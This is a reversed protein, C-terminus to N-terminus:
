TAIKKLFEDEGLIEVGLRKAKEAKSGPDAGVVVFTTKKSVSESVDAGLGRVKEKAEDRSMSELSGTFVWSTGSLPGRGVDSTARGVNVFTLLNDLRKSEDKNSFYDVISQAMVEGIGEIEDLDEISAQRLKDLSKFHRSLLVATEFGVHRIGLAYIFRELTVKRHAQIEKVLKNSSVEGFGELGGFDGPELRFLDSPESILGEQLFTEIIKGGLGRIDFAQRSVFHSLSAMEQAFCRPNSCVAAVEGQKRKVESGCIPCKEPMKFKKEKGTRLRPLVQVIKPIVDGAKEVIVTDGIKLGLREIEDENHLTAHTVTTGALQVPDMVAVPTLVGTRGVSVKIERVITTGQEAAFKWAVSGRPTKGVIGLDAFRKNSNVSVVVGDIQYDLKDRDQEIKDMVKKVEDINRCLKNYPNTPFGLLSLLDDEQSQLKLGIDAVLQWPFFSLKREAAIKPDLQRLGGAAANRPNALLPEGRKKLDKNLKLLGSRTMYIEGRVEFRGTQHELFNETKKYDLDQHHKTIFSAIEKSSPQRLKLPIAEITRANKTVDEGITGDGRTAALTLTGNEYILSCALGDMKVEAYLGDEDVRSDLKKIRALWEGAEEESFVDELSLMRTQHQVKVFGKAPEGAVRQTPSDPTILDPHEAELSYLEHKLADLAAESIELKNQVHYQYRYRDIEQRLKAIRAQADAKNM